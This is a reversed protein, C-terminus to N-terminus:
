EPWRVLALFGEQVFEAVEDARLSVLGAYQLVDGVDKSLPERKQGLQLPQVVSVRQRQEEQLPAHAVHVHGTEGSEDVRRMEALERADVACRALDFDPVLPM